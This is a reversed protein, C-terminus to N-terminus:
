DEAWKGTHGWFDNSCDICMGLEEPYIEKNVPAGCDVCPVM